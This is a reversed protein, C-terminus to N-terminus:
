GARSRLSSLFTTLEREKGGGRRSAVLQQELGPIPETASAGTTSPQESACPLILLLCRQQVIVYTIEASNM